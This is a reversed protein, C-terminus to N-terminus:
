EVRMPSARACDEQIIKAATILLPPEILAIVTTPAAVIATMVFVHTNLAIVVVLGWICRTGFTVEAEVVTGTGATPQLNEMIAHPAGNAVVSEANFIGIGSAALQTEALACNRGNLLKPSTCVWNVHIVNAATSVIIPNILAIVITPALVVATMVFVRTHFTLSVLISLCICVSGFAFDAKGIAGIGAAPQLDVM